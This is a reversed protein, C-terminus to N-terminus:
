AGAEMPFAAPGSVWGAHPHEQWATLREAIENLARAAATMSWDGESHVRVRREVGYPDFYRLIVHVAGFYASTSGADAKREIAILRDHPIEWADEDGWYVLSNEGIWMMGFDEEVLGLKRLSSRDPNSLGVPRGHALQEPPIGRGLMRRRIVLKALPGWITIWILLFQAAIFPVFMSALIAIQPPLVRLILPYLVPVLLFAFGIQLLLGVLLNSMWLKPGFGKYFPANFNFTFCRTLLVLGYGMAGLLLLVVGLVSMVLSGLPNPSVPAAPPGGRMYLGLGGCSVMVLILASVGAIWKWPSLRKPASPAPPSPAPFNSM